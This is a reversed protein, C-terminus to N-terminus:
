DKYKWTFGGATNGKGNAVKSIGSNIIGTVREAEATSRYEAVLDGELTYQYVPKCIKGNTGVGNKRDEDARRKNEEWTVLELNDFTYPKLSDIRDTSPKKDKEYGSAVWDKYLAELGNEHMWVSLEERAYNPMPHKRRKSSARQDGHIQSLLGEITRSYALKCERCRSELKFLGPMDKNFSDLSKKTDCITCRKLGQKYDEEMEHRTTVFLNNLTINKTIKRQMLKPQYKSKVGSDRWRAYIESYGLSYVHRILDEKTFDLKYGFHKASKLYDQYVSRIRAIPRVYHSRIHAYKQTDREIQEEINM